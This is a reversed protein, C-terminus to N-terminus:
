ESRRLRGALSMFADFRSVGQDSPAPLRSDVQWHARAYAAAARPVGTAAPERGSVRDDYGEIEPLASRNSTILAAVILADADLPGLSTALARLIASTPPRPSAVSLWAGMKAERWGGRLLTELDDLSAERGLDAIEAILQEGGPQTVVSTVRRYYPRVYRDLLPPILKHWEDQTMRGPGSGIVHRLVAERQDDSADVTSRYRRDVTLL